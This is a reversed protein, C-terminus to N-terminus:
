NASQIFKSLIANFVKVVSAASLHTAVLESTTIEYRDLLPFAGDRELYYNMADLVIKDASLLPYNHFPISILILDSFGIVEIQEGIQCHPLHNKIAKLRARNGLNSLMVEYGAKFLETCAQGINGAGIVGIKKMSLKSFLINMCSNVFLRAM